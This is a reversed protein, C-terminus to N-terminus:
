KARDFLEITEFEELRKQALRVSEKLQLIIQKRIDNYLVEKEEKSFDDWEFAEQLETFFGVKNTVSFTQVYAIRRNNRNVDSYIFVRDHGYLNIMKKIHKLNM